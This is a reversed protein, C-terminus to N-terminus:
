VSGEETGATFVGSAKSEDLVYPSLVETVPMERCVAEERGRM